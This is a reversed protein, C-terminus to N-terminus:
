QKHAVNIHSGDDLYDTLIPLDDGPAEGEGYLPEIAWLLLAHAALLCGYVVYMVATCLALLLPRVRLGREGRGM